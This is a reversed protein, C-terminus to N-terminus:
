PTQPPPASPPASLPLQRAARRQVVAVTFALVLVGAIALAVPWYVIALGIVLLVGFIYGFANSGPSGHWVTRNGRADTHVYRYRPGGLLMSHRRWGRPYYTTKTTRPKRPASM